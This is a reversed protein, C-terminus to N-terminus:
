PLIYTLLCVPCASYNNYYTTSFWSHLIYHYYYNMYITDLTWYGTDLTWYGTDLIWHGTDQAIARTHNHGYTLITNRGM